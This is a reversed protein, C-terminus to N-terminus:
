TIKMKQAARTNKTQHYTHRRITNQSYKEFSMTIKTNGSANLNKLRDCLHMGKDGVGCQGGALLKVLSKAFPDCTTIRPNGYADLLKINKCLALGADCIRCRRSAYLIRLSAAFPQCTTIIPNNSADLVRIYTCLSLAVDRNNCRTLQHDIYFYNCPIHVEELSNLCPSAYNPLNVNNKAYLKKLNTFLKLESEYPIVPDYNLDDLDAIICEGDDKATECYIDRYANCLSIISIDTMANQIMTNRKCLSVHKRDRDVIQFSFRTAYINNLLANHLITYNANLISHTDNLVLKYGRTYSSSITITMAHNIIDNSMITNPIKTSLIARIVSPICLEDCITIANNIGIRILTDRMDHTNTILSTIDDINTDINTNTDTVPNYLGICTLLELLPTAPDYGCAIIRAILRSSQDFSSIM